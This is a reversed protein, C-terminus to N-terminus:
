RFFPTSFQQNLRNEIRELSEMMKEIASPMQEFTLSM